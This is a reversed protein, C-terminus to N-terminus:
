LIKTPLGSLLPGSLLGLGLHSYLMLITRLSLPISPAFQIRSARDMPPSKLCPVPDEPEMFFSYKKVLQTVILKEFLICGCPTLLYNILGMPRDPNSVRHPSNIKRKEVADLSARPGVYGGICHTSPPEKGPAYLQGSVDM